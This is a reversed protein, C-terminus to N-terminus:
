HGGDGNGSIKAKYYDRIFSDPIPAFRKIEWMQSWPTGEMHTLNSLKGATMMGYSDWVARIVGYEKSAPDVSDEASVAETVLGAGHKALKKYLKPYVPGYQFAHVDNYILPEGLLALSYGHAIYVLKQLKMNTVTQGSEKALSLFANAVAEASNSM